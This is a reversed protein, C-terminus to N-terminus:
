LSLSMLVFSSSFSGSMMKILWSIISEMTNQEKFISPTPKFTAKIIINEGNSIGGLIGGNGNCSNGGNLAMLGALSTGIIGTTLAANTRSKSGFMDHAQEHTIFEAM